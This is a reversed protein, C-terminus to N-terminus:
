YYVSLLLGILSHNMMIIDQIDIVIPATRSAIGTNLSITEHLDAESIVHVRPCAPPM